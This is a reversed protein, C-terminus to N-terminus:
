CCCFQTFEKVHKLAAAKAQLTKGFFGAGGLLSVRLTPCVKVFGGTKYLRKLLRARIRRHQLGSCCCRDHCIRAMANSNTENQRQPTSLLLTRFSWLKESKM